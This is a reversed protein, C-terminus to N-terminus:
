KIKVIQSLVKGVNKADNDKFSVRIFKCGLVRKLYDERQKDNLINKMHNHQFEDYEIAVKLKPIYFDIRYNGVIFQKEVELGLEKLIPILINGFSVEFRTSKVLIKQGCIEGLKPNRYYQNLISLADKNLIYMPRKQGKIDKYKTLEFINKLENDHLQELLSRIDRMVHAHQKGTIEAIEKSTMTEKAVLENM